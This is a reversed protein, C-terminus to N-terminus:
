WDKKERYEEFLLTHLKQMENENYEKKIKEKLKEYIPDNHILISKYVFEKNSPPWYPKNIYTNNKEIYNLILLADPNKYAAVARSFFLVEDSINTERNLKGQINTKFYQELVPFFKKNPFKEISRFILEPYYNLKEKFIKYLFDVDEKKNFKSLAFCAALQKSYEDTELRAKDKIINYYKENPDISAIMWTFTELYSHELIVKDILVKKQIHSLGNKAYAKEIMLDSVTSVAMLDEYVWHTIKATDDLHTLLLDFYDAEERNIIIRYAFIRLMPVKTNVLKILEEKTANKRIYERATTDIFPLSKEKSLKELYPKLDKRFDNMDYNYKEKKCSLLLVSLYLAKIIQKM